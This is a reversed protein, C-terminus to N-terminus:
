DIAIVTAEAEGTKEEVDKAGFIINANEGILGRLYDTAMYVDNLSIDGTINLIVCSANRIDVEFGPSHVANNVAAVAKGDGKSSGFGTHALGRDKMVSLVDELDLCIAGPKTNKDQNMEINM